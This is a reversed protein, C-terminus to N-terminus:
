ATVAIQQSEAFAMRNFGHRQQDAFAATAPRGAFAGTPCCCGLRAATRHISGNKEPANQSNSSMVSTMNTSRSPVQTLFSLIGGSTALHAVAAVPLTNTSCFILIANFYMRLWTPVAAALRFRHSSPEYGHQRQPGRVATEPSPCMDNAWMLLNASVSSCNASRVAGPPAAEGLQLIAAATFQKRGPLSGLGPGSGEM